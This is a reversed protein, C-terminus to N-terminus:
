RRRSGADDRRSKLATGAAYHRSVPEDTGYVAVCRAIQPSGVMIGAIRISSSGSGGGKGAAVSYPAMARKQGDSVFAFLGVSRIAFVQIQEGRLTDDMDTPCRVMGLGSLECPGACWDKEDSGQCGHGNRAWLLHIECQRPANETGQM